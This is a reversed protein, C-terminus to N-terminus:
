IVSFIDYKVQLAIMFPTFSMCLIHVLYNNQLHRNGGLLYTVALIFLLGLFNFWNPRISRGFIALTLAMVVCTNLSHRMSRTLSPFFEASAMSIILCWKEMFEYVTESNWWDGYLRRDRIRTVESLAAIINDMVMYYVTMNIYFTPPILKFTLALLSLGSHNDCIPEIFKVILVNNVLICLMSALYKQLLYQFHIPLKPNHEQVFKHYIPIPSIFFTARKSLRRM